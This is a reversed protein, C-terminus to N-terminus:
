DPEITAKGSRILNIMTIEQQKFNENMMRIFMKDFKNKAQNENKYLDKSREQFLKVQSEIDM